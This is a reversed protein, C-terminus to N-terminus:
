FYSPKNNKIIIHHSCAGTPVSQLAYFDLVNYQSELTMVNSVMGM